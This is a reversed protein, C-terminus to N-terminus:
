SKGEKGTTEIEALVKNIIETDHDCGWTYAAIQQKLELAFAKLRNREKAREAALAEAIRNKFLLLLVSSAADYIHPMETHAQQLVRLAGARDEDNPETM